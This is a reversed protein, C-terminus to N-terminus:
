SCGIPLSADPFTKHLYELSALISNFLDFQKKHLSQKLLDISEITCNVEFQQEDFRTEDETDEDEKFLKEFEYASTKSVLEGRNQKMKEGLYKKHKKSKTLHYKYLPDYYEGCECLKAKGGCKLRHNKPVFTTTEMKYDM